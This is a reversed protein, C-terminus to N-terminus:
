MSDVENADPDLPYLPLEDNKVSSTKYTVGARVQAQWCTM